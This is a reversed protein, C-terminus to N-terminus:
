TLDFPHAMMTAGLTFHNVEVKKHFVEVAGKKRERQITKGQRAGSRRKELENV